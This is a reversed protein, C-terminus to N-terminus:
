CAAILGTHYAKLIKKQTKIENIDGLMPAQWRVVLIDSQFFMTSKLFSLQM